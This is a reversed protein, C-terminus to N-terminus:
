SVKEVGFMVMDPHIIVDVLNSIDADDLPINKGSDKENEGYHENYIDCIHHDGNEDVIKSSDKATVINQVVNAVDGQKSDTNMGIKFEESQLNKQLVVEHLYFRHSGDSM